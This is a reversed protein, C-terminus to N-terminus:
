SGAQAVEMPESVPDDSLLVRRAIARLDDRGQDDLPEGNAEEVEHVLWEWVERVFATFRERGLDSLEVQGDQEGVLGAQIADDVAPRILAMPVRHAAAIALPDVPGKAHLQQIAIQRLTWVQVADLGARSSHLLAAAVEPLRTRIIRVVQGELQEQSSREDPMAFGHGLDSAGPQTLGRMPVQKLLLAVVLALVAVPVAARFVHQLSDAYAAVVAAHQEPSLTKVAEPTSVQSPDAGSVAVAMALKPKLQNAYITGFVAAGFSSGMTRFFTVGSKAVGLDRYDVTNQVIITLVQMALGIGVGLVLMAVSSELTTSHEDLRALLVMGVAMAAAGAIPFIRYRGTRSVLAGATLSAVILGLVMPLTRLGSMTASVGDTFQLWTPLFTMTGLLAFGVIFSLVVSVSFVNKTFLRLPLIPETARWEAYVFLGLCVIAGVVLGVIVPSSWAYQTGGWSTALILAASGLSVFVIGITDFVPKDPTSVSPLLKVAFPLIVLAVPVNVYFVWQWSLHDTFFGGLLPGLGTTAGFIAGVAGQYKGRDRLPIIDAIMATATVILGGGGIGQIARSAILWTMSQSLGALASASVFIVISGIFIWKRGLLDGFKGGLITAITQTLLYATVVWSMHEAGGLDGVITPLATAVITSDLASLLIGGCILAFAVNRATKGLVPPEAAVTIDDVAGAQSM